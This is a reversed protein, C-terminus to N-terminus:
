LTISYEYENSLFLYKIIRKTIENNYNKTIFENKKSKNTASLENLIHELPLITKDNDCASFNVLKEISCTIINDRAKQNSLNGHFFLLRLFNKNLYGNVKPYSDIYQDILQCMNNVAIINRNLVTGTHFNGCALADGCLAVFQYNKKSNKNEQLNTRLKLPKGDIPFGHPSDNGSNAFNGFRSDSRQLIDNEADKCKKIFSCSQKACSFKLPFLSIKNNSTKPDILESLDYYHLAFEIYHQVNAPLNEFTINSTQVYDEVDLPNVMISIYLYNECVFMRWLNQSDFVKTNKDIQNEIIIQKTALESDSCHLEFFSDFDNKKHLKDKSKFKSSFDDKNEIDHLLILGYALPHIKNTDNDLAIANNQQTLGYYCINNEIKETYSTEKFYINRYFSNAGDNIFIIDFDCMNISAMIGNESYLLINNEIKIDTYSEANQPRILTGKKLKFYKEYAVELESLVIFYYQSSPMLYPKDKLNYKYTEKNNKTIEANINAFSSVSDLENIIESPILSLADLESTQGFALINHRTYKKRKEFITVNHGKKLLKYGTFLGVPGGGLILVNLIKDSSATDILAANVSEVNVSKINLEANISKTNLEADISNLEANISNLEANISKTELEANISKTNSEANISKTNLLKANVVSKTNLIKVNVSKTNLEANILDTNIM